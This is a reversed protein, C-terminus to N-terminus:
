ALKDLPFLFAVQVDHRLVTPIRNYLHSCCLGLHFSGLVDLTSVWIWPLTSPTPTLFTILNPHDYPNPNFSNFTQCSHEHCVLWQNTFQRGCTPCSIKPPPQLHISFIPTPQPTHDLGIIPVLLTPLPFHRLQAHDFLKPFTYLQSRENV